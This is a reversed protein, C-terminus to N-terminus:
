KELRDLSDALMALRTFMNLIDEREPDNFRTEAIKRAALEMERRLSEVGPSKKTAKNEIKALESKIM